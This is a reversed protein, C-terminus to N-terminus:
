HGGYTHSTRPPWREENHPNSINVPLTKNDGQLGSGKDSVVQVGQAITRGMNPALANGGTIAEASYPVELAGGGSDQHDGNGQEQVWSDRERLSNVFNMDKHRISGHDTALTGGPPMAYVQEPAMVEEGMRLPSQRAGPTGHEPAKRGRGAAPSRRGHEMLGRGAAQTGYNPTSARREARVMGSSSNLNSGKREDQRGAQWGPGAESARPSLYARIGDM